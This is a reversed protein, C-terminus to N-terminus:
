CFIVQLFFPLLYAFNTTVTFCFGIGFIINLFQPCKLLQLDMLVSLKSLITEQKKEVSSESELKKEISKEYDTKSITKIAPKGQSEFDKYQFKDSKKPEVKRRVLHKDVPQFFLSGFIGFFNLIAKALTTKRFGHHELFYTILNPTLIYAISQGAFSFGVARTKKTTFYQDIVLFAATHSFGLGIGLMFSYGLVIEWYYTGYACWVLGLGGIICGFISVQRTTYKKMLVGILPGSFNIVVTSLNVIFLIGTTGQGLSELFPGFLLSFTSNLSL